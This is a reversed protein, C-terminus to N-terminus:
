FIICYLRFGKIFGLLFLWCTKETVVITLNKVFASWTHHARQQIGCHQTDQWAFSLELYFIFGIIENRKSTTSWKTFLGTDPRCISPLHIFIFVSCPHSSLCLFILMLQCFIVGELAVEGV